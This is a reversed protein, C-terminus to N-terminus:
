TGTLSHVTFTSVGLCSDVAFDNQQLLCKFASYNFNVHCYCLLFTPVSFGAHFVLYGMFVYPFYPHETHWINLAEPFLSLLSLMATALHKIYPISLYIRAIVVLSSKDKQTQWTDWSSLSESKGGRKRYKCKSKASTKIEAIPFEWYQSVRCSQPTHKKVSFLNRKELNGPHKTM